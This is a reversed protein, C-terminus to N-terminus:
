WFFGVLGYADASLYHLYLPLFVIAILITYGQGIYNAITNKKLSM